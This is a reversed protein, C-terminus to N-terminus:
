RSSQRGSREIRKRAGAIVGSMAHFEWKTMERRSLLRRFIVRNRAVRWDALGQARMLEDYRDLLAEREARSALPSRPVERVAGSLEYLAVAVSHSVNLSPYADNTPITALLDLQELEDNLLGRSERGFVLAVKGPAKRIRKVASELTVSNRRHSKDTTALVATTGVALSCGRLAEKLSAVRRARDLVLQAHVARDRAEDNIAAGAVLVLDTAGFNAMARAVFGINGSYEPSVIVVRFRAAGKQVPRPRHKPSGPRRPKVGRKAM